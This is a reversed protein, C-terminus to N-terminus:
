VRIERQRLAKIAKRQGIAAAALFSVPGGASRKTQARAIWERREERADSGVGLEDPPVVFLRHPQRAFRDTLSAIKDARVPHESSGGAHGSNAIDGRGRELFKAARLGVDRAQIAFSIGIM